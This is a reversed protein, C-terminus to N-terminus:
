KVEKKSVNEEIQKRYSHFKESEYEAYNMQKFENILGKFFAACDEFGAFDFRRSAIDLIMNYM